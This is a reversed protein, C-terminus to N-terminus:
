SIGQEDLDMIRKVMGGGEKCSKELCPTRGTRWGGAEKGMKRPWPYNSFYM